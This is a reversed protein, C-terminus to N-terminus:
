APFAIETLRQTNSDYTDVMKNTFIDVESTFEVSTAADMGFTMASMAIQWGSGIAYFTNPSIYNKDLAAGLFYPVGSVPVVIAEFKKLGKPKKKSEGRFYNLVEEVEETPGASAIWSNLIPLFEIKHCLTKVNNVTLQTDAALINDRFAITTM